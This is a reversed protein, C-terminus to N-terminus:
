HTMRDNTNPEDEMIVSKVDDLIAKSVMNDVPTVNEQPAVSTTEKARRNSMMAALAFGVASGILFTTLQNPRNFM